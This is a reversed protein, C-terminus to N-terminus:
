ATAIKGLFVVFASLLEQNIQQPMDRLMINVASSAPAAEKYCRQSTLADYADIIRIIQSFDSLSEGSSAGPIAPATSTRM